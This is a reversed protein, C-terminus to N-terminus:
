VCNGYHRRGGSLRECYEEMLEEQIDIDRLNETQITNTLHEVNGREGAARNLFSISEPKFRHKAIDMARRMSDLPLNNNSVLRLRANAPVTLKKPMRGTPTLQVTVFPKPNKLSIHRCTFDTKTKIEWVLFGKDVSEGHNQQILSGPYAARGDKDIRQNTKHIDGLLAYDYKELSELDIDGHTMKWGTDTAAGVVSGHYLAINIKDEPVAKPWNTQDVISLVHLDIDSSVPVISSYKHFHIDAHNLSDVIPSIADLRSSNRASLDHNGLIMHYPAIDALSVFLNSMMKVAEPSLDLKTHFTDGTNVIIDPKEKKIETYMRDFITRYEDHYKLKRVHIDSIHVIKLSM